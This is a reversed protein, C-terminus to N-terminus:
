SIRAEVFESQDSPDVFNQNEIRDHMQATYRASKYDEQIKAILTAAGKGAILPASMIALKYAIAVGAPPSLWKLDFDNPVYEVIACEQNTVIVKKGDHIMVRRQIQNSLKDMLVGNQLRRIMAANTPYKYAFLWLDNPETEILELQKQASTGDLDMETLAVNFAAEWNVKLTNNESSPDNEVDSIRKTLLLASLALNFIKAKTYM